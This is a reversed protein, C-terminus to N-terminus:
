ILRSATRACSAGSFNQYYGPNTEFLVGYREATTLKKGVELLQDWTTPVDNENLGADEFAKISYYFAMPEVEMPVGFIKGDVMRNAIVSEPFDARAAEEIAPTLDQLVGGNYYRLFDGPSIIFIDPGQGSAFSTALKTGGIYESGVVYELAVQEAQTANWDAVMKVFWEVQPKVDGDPAYFQWFSLTNDQAFAKGLMPMTLGAAALATGGKLISRRSWGSPKNSTNTM